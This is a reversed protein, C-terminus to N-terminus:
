AVAKRSKEIADLEAMTAWVIFLSFKHKTRLCAREILEERRKPLSITITTTEADEVSTAEKLSVYSPAKGAIIRNAQKAACFGMFESRNEVRNEPDGCYQDIRTLCPVGIRISVSRCELSSM